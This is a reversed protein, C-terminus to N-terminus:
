LKRWQIDSNKDILSNLQAMRDDWIKQNVGPAMYHKHQGRYINGLDMDMGILHIKKFGMNILLEALLYGSNPLLSPSPTHPIYYIRSADFEYGIAKAPGQIRHIIISKTWIKNIIYEILIDGNMTFIYDPIFDRYIINCGFTFDYDLKLKDLNIGIRSPGNGILLASDSNKATGYLSEVSRGIM